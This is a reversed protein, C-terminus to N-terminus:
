SMYLRSYLREHQMCRIDFGTNCVGVLDRDLEMTPAILAAISTQMRFLIDQGDLQGLPVLKVANTVMGAAANYYFAYLAEPLPIGLLCAYVGYAIAFHGETKKAVIAAEFAAALPLEQQRRFIKILRLGLKQSASKIEVPLKLAGLEEDLLQLQAFDNAAAAHYALCVFAADNFHLNATLMQKVYQEATAVNHVMGQQVYTELGNSHSYAGIPLTPDSLHLLSGLFFSNM